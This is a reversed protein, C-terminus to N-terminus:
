HAYVPRPLIPDAHQTAHQDHERGPKGTLLVVLGDNPICYQDAHKHESEPLLGPRSAVVHGFDLAGFDLARVFLERHNSAELHAV